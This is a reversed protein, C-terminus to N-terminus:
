LVTQAGRREGGRSETSYAPEGDTNAGRRQLSTPTPGIGAEECVTEVRSGVKDSLSHLQKM